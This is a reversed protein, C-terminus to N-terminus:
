MNEGSYTDLGIVRSVTRLRPEEEEEEEEKRQFAKLRVQFTRGWPSSVTGNEHHGEGGGGGSSHRASGRGARTAPQSM